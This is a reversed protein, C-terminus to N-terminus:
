KAAAANCDDNTMHFKRYSSFLALDQFAQLNCMLIMRPM